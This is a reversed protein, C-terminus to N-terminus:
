GLKKTMWYYASGPPYEELVGVVEYGNRQYFAKGQFDFTSLFIKGCGKSLAIKEAEKLVSTGIGKRRYEERLWFDKIEVWNWVMEAYLGGIWENKEDYLIISFYQVSGPNRKEMHHKSRTDNYTRINRHLFSSFEENKESEVVMEYALDEGKEL